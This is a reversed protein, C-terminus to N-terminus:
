TRTGRRPTPGRGQATPSNLADGTPTHHGIAARVTRNFPRPPEPATRAAVRRRTSVCAARYKLLRELFHIDIGGQRFSSNEMLRSCRSPPPSPASRSSAPGRAMRTIAKDRDDAHIILKGIMSDYNPVRYGPVVHTDLRRRPRRPKGPPSRDASPM